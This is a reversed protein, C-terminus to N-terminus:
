IDKFPFLKSRLSNLVKIVNVTPGKQWKDKRKRRIKM